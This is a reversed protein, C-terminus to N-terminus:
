KSKDIIQKETIVLPIVKKNANAELIDDITYDIKYRRIAIEDFEDPDGDIDYTKIKILPDLYKVADKFSLKPIQFILFDGLKEKNGFSFDDEQVEIIDGERFVGTCFAPKKAPNIKVLFLAM